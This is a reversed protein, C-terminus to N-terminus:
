KEEYSSEKVDLYDAQYTLADILDELMTDFSAKNDDFILFRSKNEILHEALKRLRMSSVPHIQNLPNELYLTQFNFYVFLGIPPVGMRRMIENAFRDAAIENYQKELIDLGQDHCHGLYMHGLNHAMNWAVATKLLKQSVDDVYKDTNYIDKPIGLMYLPSIDKKESKPTNVLSNIKRIYANLEDIKNKNNKYLYATAISLDDILQVNLVPYSVSKQECSYRVSFVDSDKTFNAPLTVHFSIEDHVVRERDTLYKYIDESWIGKMNAEIRGKRYELVSDDYLNSLQEFSYCPLSLVVLIFVWSSKLAM